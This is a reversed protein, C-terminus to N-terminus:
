MISSKPPVVESPCSVSLTKMTPSANPCSTNRGGRRGSQDRIGTTLAPVARTGRSRLVTHAKAFGVHAKHPGHAAQLTDCGRCTTGYDRAGDHSISVLAITGCLHHRRQGCCHGDNGHDGGTNARKISCNASQGATNTASATKAARTRAASLRSGSVVELVVPSRSVKSLTVRNM